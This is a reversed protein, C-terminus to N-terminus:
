RRATEATMAGLVANVMVAKGKAIAAGDLVRGNEAVAFEVTCDSDADYVALGDTNSQAKAGVSDVFDPRGPWADVYRAAAGKLAFCEVFLAISDPGKKFRPCFVGSGVFKPAGGRAAFGPSSALVARSLPACDVKLPKSSGPAWEVTEKLVLEPKLRAVLEKALPTARKAVDEDSLEGSSDAVRVEITCDSDDDHVLLVGERAFAARGLGPVALVTGLVEAAKKDKAVLAAQERTQEVLVAADAACAFSVAVSKGVDERDHFSDCSTGYKPSHRDGRSLRRTGALYKQLVEPPMVSECDVRRREARAVLVDGLSTKTEGPRESVQERANEKASDASDRCALAGLTVLVSIAFRM